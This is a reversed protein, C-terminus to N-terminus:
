RGLFNQLDVFPLLWNIFHCFLSAMKTGVQEPGHPPLIRPDWSLPRWRPPLPGQAGLPPYQADTPDPCPLLSSTALHCLVLIVAGDRSRPVTICLTLTM